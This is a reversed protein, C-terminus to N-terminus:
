HQKKKENKVAICDNIFKGFYENDGTMPGQNIINYLNMFEDPLESHLNFGASCIENIVKKAKEASYGRNIMDAVEPLGDSFDDFLFLDQALKSDPAWAPDDIKWEGARILAEIGLKAANRGRETNLDDYGLCEDSYKKLTAVARDYEKPDSNGRDSIPYNKKGNIGYREKGAATLRGKKDQYRRVGWKMGLIGHHMLDNEEGNKKTPEKDRTVYFEM